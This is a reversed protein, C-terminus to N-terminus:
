SNSTRLHNIGFIVLIAMLGAAIIAGIAALGAIRGVTSWAYASLLLGRLTEGKFLTDRTQTIKTADAQLTDITAQPQKADKAEQVKAKAAREPTGLDAFTQGGGIAKLHGNIYSAYAQAEQGTDLKADAYKLLDQRGEKTLSAATGFTIRQSGLEDRVYNRSFSSGWTLLSAAVLLVVMSVLGMGILVRDIRKRTLAVIHTQDLYAKNTAGDISAQPAATPSPAKPSPANTIMTNRYGSESNEFMSRFKARAL